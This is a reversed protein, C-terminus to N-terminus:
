DSVICVDLTRPGHVGEVRNLEIDSTASPGSILTYPQRPTRAHQELLAFAEPVTGVIDQKRVICLHYDPLLSLMRRGQAFGSDLIITGTQAIGVVSGTVVGDSAAIEHRSLDVDRLYHVDGVPLWEIPMDNPIVITRAGRLALRAGVYSALEHMRCSGVWAKYETVRHAFLTIRSEADLDDHTRITTTTSSDIVGHTNGRTIGARIRALMTDRSPNNM